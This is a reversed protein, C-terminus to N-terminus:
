YHHISSHLTHETSQVQCNYLGPTLDDLSIIHSASTGQHMYVVRGTIDILTIRVAQSQSNEISVSTGTQRISLGRSSVLDNVGTSIKSYMADFIVISGTPWCPYDIELRFSTPDFPIEPHSCTWYKFEYRSSLNASLYLPRNNMHGQHRYDPEVIFDERIEEGTAIDIARAYATFAPAVRFEFQTSDTREKGIWYECFLRVVYIKERYSEYEPMLKEGPIILLKDSNECVMKAPIPRYIVTDPYRYMQFLKACSGIPMTGAPPAPSFRGIRLTDMCPSIYGSWGTSRPILISGELCMTYKGLPQACLSVAALLLVLPIFRYPTMECYRIVLQFMSSNAYWPAAPSGYEAYAITPM